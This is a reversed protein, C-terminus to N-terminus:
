GCQLSLPLHFIKVPSGALSSSIM